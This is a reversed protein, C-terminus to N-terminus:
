IGLLLRKAPNVLGRTKELAALLSAASFCKGQLESRGALNILASQMSLAEAKELIEGNLEVAEIEINQDRKPPTPGREAAMKADAKGKKATPTTVDIAEDVCASQRRRKGPTKQTQARQGDREKVNTEAVNLPVEATLGDDGTSPKSKSLRKKSRTGKEVVEATGKDASSKDITEAVTDPASRILRKSTRVNKEVVKKIDQKASVVGDSVDAVVKSKRPRKELAFDATGAITKSLDEKEVEASIVAKSSQGAKVTKPSQRRRRKAGDKVSTTALLKSEDLLTQPAVDTTHNPNGRVMNLIVDESVVPIGLEECKALKSPGAEGHDTVLHTVKATVNKSVKGGHEQVYKEMDSREFSDLTGSVVICVEALADKSGKPHDKKGINPPTVGKNRMHQFFNAKQGASLNSASPKKMVKAAEPSSCTDVSGLGDLANVAATSLEPSSSTSMGFKFMFAMLGLGADRSAYLVQEETLPWDEWNSTRVTSGAKNLHMEQPCHKKVVAELSADKANSRGTKKNLTQLDYIGRVACGFDRVVRTADGTLNVGVKAICADGLLLMLAEPLKGNLGVVSFVLAQLGRPGHHFLQLTALRDPADPSRHWPAAWECDMGLIAALSPGSAGASKLVAAAWEDAAQPDRTCLCLYGVGGVSLEATVSADALMPQIGEDSAVKPETLPLSRTGSADGRALEANKSRKSIPAM